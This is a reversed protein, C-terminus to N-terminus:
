NQILIVKRAILFFCLEAAFMYPLLIVILLGDPFNYDRTFEWFVYTVILSLALTSLTAYAFRKYKGSVAKLVYFNPILFALAPLSFILSLATVDLLSLGITENIWHFTSGLLNTSLWILISKLIIHTHKM